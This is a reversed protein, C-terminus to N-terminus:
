KKLLYNGLFLYDMGTSYFCRIADEPTNVIPEGMVNFSTNFIVPVGTIDKFNKILRYYLPNLRKSISQARGTGDVHTVAPILRQKDKKIMFVKLMYPASIDKEFYNKMEEELISPAFPRFSERHKVLKNVIDKMDAKRPDALISRNGLARPGVEMRGQFWGIIKGKSLLKAALKATDKVFTYPLKSIDLSKKIQSNNCEPGLYPNFAPVYIRNRKLIINYIYYAAGLACGADGAAPQIFINKFKTNDYIRGNMVSNLAVGGSLCLNQCKTISYLYKLFHFCVVETVKQLSAAIDKHRQEIGAGPMREKGLLEVLKPSYWGRGVHFYFFKTNLKFGGDRTLRFLKRIKKYYTLKGLPALGMVKGEDCDPKFGLYSTFSSYLFGLSHPFKIKKLVKISNKNGIGLYTTSDDGGGDVSMLACKKFNSLFFSSALHSEHHGIFFITNKYNFKKRLLIKNHYIRVIGKLNLFFNTLGFPFYRFALFLSTLLTKNPDYSIGIAKIENINIKNQKLCFEISKEPFKTTHKERNLREEEVFSLVKGNKILCASSDHGLCNIGRIYM